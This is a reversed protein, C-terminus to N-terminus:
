NQDKGSFVSCVLTGWEGSGRAMLFYADRCTGNTLDAVNNGTLDLKGIIGALSSILTGTSNAGTPPAQPLAAAVGALATLITIRM